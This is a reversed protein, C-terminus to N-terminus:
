CLIPTVFVLKFVGIQHQINLVPGGPCSKRDVGKQSSLASPWVIIWSHWVGVFNGSSQNLGGAGNLWVTCTSSENTISQRTVM